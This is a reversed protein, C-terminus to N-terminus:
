FTYGIGVRANHETAKDRIEASYGANVDLNDSLQWTAGVGIEFGNRGPLASKGTITERGTATVKAASRDVDSIFAINAYPTVKGYTKSVAVGLKVALNSYDEDATYDATTVRGKETFDDMGAKTYEVGVYPTFVVGSDTTIDRSLSASLVWAESDWEATATGPAKLSSRTSDNEFWGYAAFASLKVDNMLGKTQFKHVGYIGIMRADQDISGGDYFDTGNEPENEGWTCGFAVGVVTNKTFAHDVGVAAGWANYDYGNTSSGSDISDFQAIASGWTRTTGAKRLKGQTEALRGFGLVTDGASVLTNAIRWPEELRENLVVTIKGNTLLTSWDWTLLNEDALTPLSEYDVSFTGSLNAINGTFLTLSDGEAFLHKDAMAAKGEENTQTTYDKTTGAPSKEEYTFGIIANNLTLAGDLNVQSIAGTGYTPTLTGDPTGTYKDWEDSNTVLTFRVESGKVEGKAVSLESPSNGVKLVGGTMVFNQVLGSGSLKSNELRLVQAHEDLSGLTTKKEGTDDHLNDMVITANDFLVDDHAYVVEGKDNTGKVHHFEVVSGNAINIIAGPEFESHVNLHASNKNEVLVTKTEKTGDAKETEVVVEDYKLSNDESGGVKVSVNDFVITTGAGVHMNHTSHMNLNSLTVSTGENVQILDITQAKKKTGDTATLTQGNVEDTFGLHNNDKKNEDGKIETEGDLILVMGTTGATKEETTANSGEGSTTIQNVVVTQVTLGSSTTLGSGIVMDVINETDGTTNSQNSEIVVTQLTQGPDDGVAEELAAANDDFKDLQKETATLTQKEYELTVKITEETTTDGTSPVVAVEEEEAEQLVESLKNFEISTYGNTSDGTATFDLRQEGSNETAEALVKYGKKLEDDTLGSINVSSIGQNTSTIVDEVKKNITVFTVEKGLLGVANTTDIDVSVVANASGATIATGSATGSNIFITTAVGLNESLTLTGYLNVHNSGSWPLFEAQKNNGVLTLTASDVATTGTGTITTTLDGMVVLEDNNAITPVETKGGDIELYGSNTVKSQSSDGVITISAGEKVVTEGSGTIVIGKNQYGNGLEVDDFSLIGDNDISPIGTPSGESDTFSVGNIDLKAGEEVNIQTQSIHGDSNDLTWTADKKVTATGTGGINNALNTYINLQANNTIHDSDVYTTDKCQINLVGNNTIEHANVRKDDDSLTNDVLTLIGNESVETSGTGYLRTEVSGNVTLTGANDITNIESTGGLTLSSTSSTVEVLGEGTIGQLATMTGDVNLTGDNTITGLGTTSGNANWTGGKEITITGGNVTTGNADAETTGNTTLTGSVNISSSNDLLTDGKVTATGKVDLYGGNVITLNGDTTETTTDGTEPDVIYTEIKSVALTADKDVTVTGKKEAGEAAGGLINLEGTTLEAKDSITATSDKGIVHLAKTKLSSATTLTGTGEYGVYINNFVITEFDAGQKIDLTGKGTAKDGLIINDAGFAAGTNITVSGIGKHGIVLNDANVLGNPNYGTGPTFDEKGIVITGNGTENQGLIVDAAGFMGCLVNLEGKGSNGIVVTNYSLSDDEPNVTSAVEVRAYDFAGETGWEGDINIIGTAGKENGLVLSTLEISSKNNLTVTGTAGSKDGIITNAGYFSASSGNYLNLEAKGGQSGITVYAGTGTNDYTSVFLHGNFINIIDTEASPATHHGVILAVPGNTSEGDESYPAYLEVQGSTGETGEEGINLTGNGNNAGVVIQSSAYVTANNTLTLTGQNKSVSNGVNVSNATISSTFDSDTSTLTLNGDEGGGGIFLDESSNNYSASTTTTGTVLYQGNSIGGPFSTTEDAQTTYVAMTAMAALVARRLALNLHLKM